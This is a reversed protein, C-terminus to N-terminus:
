IDLLRSLLNIPFDCRSENPVTDRFSVTIYVNIQNEKDLKAPKLNWDLVLVRFKVTEGPKYIAKDTYIFTSANKSQVRLSSENKFLIGSVGEAVFKYSKRWDVNDLHLTM